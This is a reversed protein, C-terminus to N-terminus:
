IEASRLAMTRSLVARPLPAQGAALAMASFVAIGALGMLLIAEGVPVLRAASKLFADEVAFGAMSATMFLSGRLNPSLGAATM